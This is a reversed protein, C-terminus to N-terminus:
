ATDDCLSVFMLRLLYYFDFKLLLLWNEQEHKIDILFQYYIIDCM